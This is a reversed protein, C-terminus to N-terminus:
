WGATGPEGKFPGVVRDTIWGGYFGGAQARVVEGNVTCREVRGPYVAVTDLLVAFDASPRPYTWGARDAHVAGSVLDCYSALGKWECWSSGTVPQLVGEDFDAAPVYYTPPHSTELVRVTRASRAVVRGGLVIEVTDASPEARPPRPHDWVSEPAPSV